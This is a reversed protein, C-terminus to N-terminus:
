WNYASAEAVELAAELAVELLPIQIQIQLNKPTPNVATATLGAGAVRVRIVIVMVVLVSKADAVNRRKLAIKQELLLAQIHTPAFKRSAHFQKIARSATPRHGAVKVNGAVVATANMLVNLGLQERV